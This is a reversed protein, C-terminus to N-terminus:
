DIQYEKSDISKILKREERMIEPSQSVTNNWDIKNKSDQDAAIANCTSLCNNYVLNFSPDQQTLGSMCHEMCISKFENFFTGGYVARFFTWDANYYGLADEMEQTRFHFSEIKKNYIPLTEYTFNIKDNVEYQNDPAISEINYSTFGTAINSHNWDIQTNSGNIFNFDRTKKWIKNGGSFSYKAGNSRIIFASNSAKRSINVFKHDLYLRHINDTSTYDTATFPPNNIRELVSFMNKFGNINYYFYDVELDTKHTEINNRYFLEGNQGKDIDFSHYPFDQYFDSILNNSIKTPDHLKIKDQEDAFYNIDRTIVPGYNLSWGKGYTSYKDNVNFGTSSYSLTIAQQLNNTKAEALELTFTARGTAEDVYTSGIINKDPM